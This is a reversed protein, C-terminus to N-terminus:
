RTPLRVEGAVDRHVIDGTSDSDVTFDRGIRTAEISGSSDNGVAASGDIDAFRIGGSSDRKVRADGRVQQLTIDGSSDVEVTADGGITEAEIDGSSDAAVHFSGGVNRVDIDGSTDTVRLDGAIDEIDLDGSSDIVVAGAVGALQLEGSSDAIDALMRAPMRVRLDLRRYSNGFWSFQEEDQDPIRAEVIARGGEIRHVLQIGELWGAESACATGRVEIAALGPEGRVELDGAGARLELAELGAADLDLNREARHECDAAATTALCLSGLLALIRHTM